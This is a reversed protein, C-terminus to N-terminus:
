LDQIEPPTLFLRTLSSTRSASCWPIAAVTCLHPHSNPRVSCGGQRLRKYCCAQKRPLLASPNPPDRPDWTSPHAIPPCPHPRSPTSATPPTPSPVFSQNKSGAQSSCDLRPTPLSPVFESARQRRM